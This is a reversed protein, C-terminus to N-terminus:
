AAVQTMRCKRWCIRGRRRSISSLARLPRRCRLCRVTSESGVQDTLRPHTQAATETIEGSRGIRNPPSM